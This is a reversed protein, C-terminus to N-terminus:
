PRRSTWTRSTTTPSPPTPPSSVPPMSPFRTPSPASAAPPRSPTPRPSTRALAEAIDNDGASMFYEGSVGLNANWQVSGRSIGASTAGIDTRVALNASVRVDAVDLGIDTLFTNAAAQTVTIDKGQDHSIRLRLGSGDPVLTATINTVKSTINSAITTISDGASVTFPSGTLTGTSDRFTLTAAKATFSSALM